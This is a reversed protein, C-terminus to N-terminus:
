PTAAGAMPMRRAMLELNRVLAEVLPRDDMPLRDQVLLDWLEVAKTKFDIATARRSWQQVSDSVLVFVHSDRGLVHYTRSFSPGLVQSVGSANRYEIVGVSSWAVQGSAVGLALVDMVVPNFAHPLLEPWGAWRRDIHCRERLGDPLQSYDRWLEDMCSLAFLPIGARIQLYAARDWWGTEVLSVGPYDRSVDSVAGSLADVGLVEIHHIGPQHQPPIKNPNYSWLPESFRRLESISNHLDELVLRTASSGRGPAFAPEFERETFGTIASRLAREESGFWPASEASEALFKGADAHPRITGADCYRTFPAFPRDEPVRQSSLRQKLEDIHKRATSCIEEAERVRDILYGVGSACLDNIAQSLRTPLVLSNVTDKWDLAAQERRRRRRSRFAKQCLEWTRLREKEAHEAHKDQTRLSDRAEALYAILRSCERLASPIRGPHTSADMILNRIAKEGSEQLARLHPETLKRAYDEVLETATAYIEELRDILERPNAFDFELLLLELTEPFRGVRCEAFATQVGLDGLRQVNGTDDLLSALLECEFELRAKAVSSPPVELTAVGFSAYTARKGHVFEKTELQPILNHLIQRVHHGISPTSMLYPLYAMQRALQPVNNTTDYLEGINDVLYVLDFPSRDLVLRQGPGFSVEVPTRPNALYDIEKLAAYANAAVRNTAAMHRFPGPLLFVGVVSVTPANKLEERVLRAVDLIIGSGTGGCLSALVYVEVSGQEDISEGREIERLRERSTLTALWNRLQKLVRDPQAHLALRGLPRIQAAGHILSGVNIDIPFWDRVYDVEPNRLMEPADRLVLRLSEVDLLEVNGLAKPAVTDLYSLGVYPPVEGRSENFLTRLQLLAELGTGGLGLVLIRPQTAM